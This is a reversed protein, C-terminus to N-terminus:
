EQTEYPSRIISIESRRWFFVEIYNGWKGELLDFAPSDHPKSWNSNLTNVRSRLQVSSCWFKLKLQEALLVSFEIHHSPSVLQISNFVLRFQIGCNISARFVRWGHRLSSLILGWGSSCYKVQVCVRSWLGRHLTDLTGQTVLGWTPCPQRKM